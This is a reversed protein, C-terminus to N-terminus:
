SIDQNRQGVIFAYITSVVYLPIISMCIRNFSDGVGLRLYHPRGMCVAFNCLIFGWVCLDLYRNRCKLVLKFIEIVVVALPVYKWYWDSCNSIFVQVNNTFKDFDLMGLGLCAAILALLVFAAMHKRVYCILKMNYLFIYLLTLMLALLIITMTEVTLMKESAQKAGAFYQCVINAFFLIQLISMPLYLALVRKRTLRRSSICIIFFCMTLATEPRSLALWIIFLSMVCLIGNDTNADTVMPLMVVFVIYVMFYTNGIIWTSLYSVGPIVMVTLVALGALFGSIKRGYSKSSVNYILISVFGYMSFVLMYHIAYINEFGWMTAFASTLAPSIGTWTMYAGVVDSSMGAHKAMLTGYQMVFYYSDSSMFVAFIGFSAMLTISFVIVSVEVLQIWRIKKYTDKYKCILCLIILIGIISMICRNYPIGLFLVLASLAGWIANGIPMALVYVWCAGLRSCLPYAIIFGMFWLVMTAVIQRTKYGATANKVIENLLTQEVCNYGASTYWVTVLVAFILFVFTIIKVKKENM